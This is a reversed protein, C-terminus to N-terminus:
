HQLAWAWRGLSALTSVLPWPGSTLPLPWPAPTSAEPWMGAEWAHGWPQSHRHRGRLGQLWLGEPGRYCPVPQRHGVFCDTKSRQLSSPADQCLKGERRFTGEVGAFASSEQVAFTLAKPHRPPPVAPSSVCPPCGGRLGPFEPGSLQTRVWGDKPPGASNPGLAWSHTDPIDGARPPPLAAASGRFAQKLGTPGQPPCEAGPPFPQRRSAHHPHQPRRPAATPLPVGHSNHGWLCM